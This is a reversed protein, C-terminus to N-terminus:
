QGGQNNQQARDNFMVRTKGKRMKLGVKLSERSLDNLMEQLHEANNSILVIYDAFRLHTLHEGDINIGKSEWSLKRFIGKLCVTFLKPSYTDGQRVGKGIKIKETDKHLRVVSTGNACINEILQIYTENIWQECLANYMATREVSDFAMEYDVFALWLPM